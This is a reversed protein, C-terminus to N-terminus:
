NDTCCCTFDTDLYNAFFQAQLIRTNCMVDATGSPDTDEPLVFRICRVTVDRCTTGTHAPVTFFKMGRNQVDGGTDTESLVM